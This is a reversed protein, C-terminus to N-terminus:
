AKPSSGEFAVPGVSANSAGRRTARLARALLLGSCAGLVVLAPNAIEPAALRAPALARLVGLAFNTAFISLMVLMPVVSGPVTYGGAGDYQVGGPSKLVSANVAQALGFGILWLALTHGAYGFKSMASYISFAIMALPAILLRERSMTRTRMQMLGFVVIAALIGWVYVPANVLVQIPM